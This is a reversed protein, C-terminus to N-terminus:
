PRAFVRLTSLIEGLHEDGTRAHALREFGAVNVVFPPPMPNEFRAVQVLGHAHAAAVLERAALERLDCVLFRFEGRRAHGLAGDETSMLFPAVADRLPFVISHQTVLLDPLESPGQDVLWAAADHYGRDSTRLVDSTEIAGAVALAVGCCAAALPTRRTHGVLWWAGAGAALCVPALLPVLLRPYNIYLPMTGAFVAIWLLLLVDGSRRRCVFRVLGVLACGLVLVSTWAGLARAVFLGTQPLVYLAPKAMWKARHESFAEFGIDVHIEWLMYAAPGASVLAALVLGRWAAVNPRTSRRARVLGPLSRAVFWAAIVVLPFFGHYKVLFTAGVLLGGLAWRWSSGRRAAHDLAAISALFFAAFVGDTIPQRSYVVHYEMGALAAAGIWAPGRGVWRAGWAAVGVVAATGIAAHVFALATESLGWLAFVLAHMWPVLHPAHFPVLVHKGYPGVGLIGGTYPGADYHSIGVRELHWFRLAGAFIALVVLALRWARRPTPSSSAPSM